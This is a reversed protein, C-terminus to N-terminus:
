QDKLKGGKIPSSPPAPLTFLFECYEGEKSDVWIKGGSLNILVKCIHLGLGSGTTNELNLDISLSDGPMVSIGPYDTSIELGGAGYASMHGTLLMLFVAAILTFGWIRRRIGALEEERKRAIIKEM